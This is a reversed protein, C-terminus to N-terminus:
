VYNFGPMPFPLPFIKSLTGGLAGPLQPASPGGLVLATAQSLKLEASVSGHSIVCTEGEQHFSLQRLERRLLRAALYPRLNRMLGPLDVLRHTGFLHAPKMDFGRQRLLHLFERDHGLVRLRVAEVGADRLVAPLGELLAARAGAYESLALRSIGPERFGRRSLMLYAAPEGGSEILWVRPRSCDWRLCLQLFFEASRLLRVSEAQHLLALRPWDDASVRRVTLGTVEEKLEELRMQAEFLRGAPVCHSRRYLGRDGSVILLKAGARTM